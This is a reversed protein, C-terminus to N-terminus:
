QRCTLGVAAVGQFYGAGGNGASIPFDPRQDGVPCEGSWRRSCLTITAKRTAEVANALTKNTWLVPLIVHAAEVPSNM